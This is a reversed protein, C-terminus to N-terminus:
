RRFEFTEFKVEWNKYELQKNINSRNSRIQELSVEDYIKIIFISKETIFNKKEFYIKIHQIIEEEIETNRRKILEIRKQEKRDKELRRLELVERSDIISDFIPDKDSCSVAFDVLTDTETIETIESKKTKSINAGM